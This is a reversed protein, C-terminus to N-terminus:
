TNLFANHKCYSDPLDTSSRDRARVIVVRSPEGLAGEMCLEDDGERATGERHNPSRLFIDRLAHDLDASSRPMSEYEVGARLGISM